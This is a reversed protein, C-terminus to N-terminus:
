VLAEKYAGSLLSTQVKGSAEMYHLQIQPKLQRGRLTSEALRPRQPVPNVLQVQSLREM